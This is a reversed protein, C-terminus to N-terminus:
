EGVEAPDMELIMRNRTRGLIDESLVVPMPPETPPVTGDPLPRPGGVIDGRTELDGLDVWAPDTEFM